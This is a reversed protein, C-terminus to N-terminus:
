SVLAVRRNGSAADDFGVPGRGPGAYSNHAFRLLPARALREDHVRAFWGQPPGANRLTNRAMLLLHERGDDPTSAAEAGYSLMAANTTHRAQVILNGVLVATGGEPFEVEYAARGDPGDDFHNDYLHNVRARSKLLHGAQGGGFHCDSVALRAMRGAYLLHPLTSGAPAASFRCGQVRLEADAFNASLIGNENDEFHCDRVTLLGREFRIGAGNSDPVRTGRFALNEIEIEGDRVVLLAKGEAHRGDAQLVARGGVGRIRLRRQRVVAAQGRHVGAELWVEDGEGAQAVAAALSDGPRVVVHRGGAM